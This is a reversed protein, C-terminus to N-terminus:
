QTPELEACGVPVTAHAPLGAISEVTEPLETSPDVGHVVVTRSGPDLEESASLEVFIDDDEGRVAAVVQDFPAGEEYDITGSATAVPFADPAQLTLDDDLATLIGGYSPLGETVDVWGDGNADADMTPCVAAAHIHQAHAISEALGFADVDASFIDESENITITASGSAPVGNLAQLAGDYTVPEDPFVIPDDDDDCAAVGFLAAGTAALLCTRM